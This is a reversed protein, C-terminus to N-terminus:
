HWLSSDDFDDESDDPIHNHNRHHCASSVSSLRLCRLVVVIVVVVIYSLCVSNLFHNKLNKMKGEIYSIRLPNEEDEYKKRSFKKTKEKNM